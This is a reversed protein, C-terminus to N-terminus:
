SLENTPKEQSESKYSSLFKRLQKRNLTELKQRALELLQQYEAVMENSSKRRM